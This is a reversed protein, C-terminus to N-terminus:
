QISKTSREDTKFNDFDTFNDLLIKEISCFNRKGLTKVGHNVGTGFFTSLYWKEAVVDKQDPHYNMLDVTMNGM